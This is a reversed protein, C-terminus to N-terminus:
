VLILSSSNPRKGKLWAFLTGVVIGSAEAAQKISTYYIGTELDLVIRATGHNNATNVGHGIPKKKGM